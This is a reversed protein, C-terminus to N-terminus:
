AVIETEVVVNAHDLIPDGGSNGLLKVIVPVAEEGVDLDRGGFDLLDNATLADDTVSADESFFVEEMGSGPVYRDEIAM